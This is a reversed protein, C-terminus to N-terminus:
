PLGYRVSVDGSVELRHRALVPRPDDGRYIEFVLEYLGNPLQFGHELSSAPRHDTDFRFVTVSAPEDTEGKAWVVIVMRNLEAALEPSLDLRVMADHRISDVVQVIAVAAASGLLALALIRKLM